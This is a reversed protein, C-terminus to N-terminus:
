SSGSLLREYFDIDKECLALIGQSNLAESRKYWNVTRNVAESTSLLPNWGLRNKAKSIDLTLVRSEHKINQSKASSVWSGSGWNKIVLEVLTRVDVVSSTKPGFNWADAFESDAALLKSGIILYGYLPELVYQWPRVAGPNRVLIKENNRLSRICDPVLRDKAYDGGGIINGARVSAVLKQSNGFFSNRYCEVILEACAKSCSYPDYGGLRDDEKYPIGKGEDRYCKDTTIIVASKVSKTNRICELVAATGVVNTNITDFPIEYSLRVIPQAALHFVAEPRYREFISALKKHDSVDGKEDAFIHNKLDARQYIFENEWFPLSYGIVKAGLRNLWISLWAGKFGTHGTVLVRKAKYAAMSQLNKM